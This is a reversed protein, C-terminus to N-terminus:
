SAQKELEKKKGSDNKAQPPDNVVRDGVQAL